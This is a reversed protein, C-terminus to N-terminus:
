LHADKSKYSTLELHKWLVNAERFAMQFTTWDKLSFKVGRGLNILSLGPSQVRGPWVINQSRSISVQKYLDWIRPYWENFTSIYKLFVWNKNNQLWLNQIM